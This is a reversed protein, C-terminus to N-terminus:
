SERVVEDPAKDPRLGRWTPHRLRGDRTWESFQVEGVLKPTVWHADKTDRTPLEGGFPPTKRELPALKRRLDDLM